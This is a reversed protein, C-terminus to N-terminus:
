HAFGSTERAFRLSVGVNHSDDMSCVWFHVRSNWLVPRTM